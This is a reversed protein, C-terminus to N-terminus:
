ARRRRAAFGLGTLCLLLSTSVEPVLTLGSILLANPGASDPGGTPTWLLHFTDIVTSSPLTTAGGINLGGIELNFHGPTFSLNFSTASDRLVGSSAFSQPTGSGVTYSIAWAPDTFTPSLPNTDFGPTFGVSFVNSAGSTLSIGFTDQLPPASGDISTRMIFNLSASSGGNGANVMPEGYAHSLDVTTLTPLYPITADAFGIGGYNVSVGGVVAPVVTSMPSPDNLVWGDQGAINDGNVLASFDTSYIASYANVSLGAVALFFFAKLKM